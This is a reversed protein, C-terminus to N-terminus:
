LPWRQHGGSIPIKDNLMEFVRFILDNVDVWALIPCQLEVIETLDSFIDMEELEKGRACALRYSENLDRWVKKLDNVAKKFAQLYVKLEEIAPHGFDWDRQITPWLPEDDWEPEALCQELMFEADSFTELMADLRVDYLGYLHRLLRIYDLPM